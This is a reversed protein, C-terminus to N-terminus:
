LDVAAAATAVAANREAIQEQSIPTPPPLPVALLNYSVDLTFSAGPALELISAKSVRGPEVCVYHQWADDDLDVIAAARPAAPNWVVVDVNHARAPVGSGGELVGVYDIRVGGFVDSRLGRVLASRSVPTMYIRDIEAGRIAIPVAPQVSEVGGKVKDAFRAGDLWGVTPMGEDDPEDDAVARVAGRGLAIYAHLLTEFTFPAAASAPNNVTLAARLTPGCFTLRYTLTFAHPWVARTADTDRLCLEVYGDRSAVVEWTSTRAFGHMPLPGQAAFQPFAIPIGGRIPAVGDFVAISSLFLLDHGRVTYSTVHAGHLYVELSAGSAAHTAIVRPLGNRGLTAPFDLPSVSM